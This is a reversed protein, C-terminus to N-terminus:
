PLIIATGENNGKITFYTGDTEKRIDTLSVINNNSSAFSYDADDVVIGNNELQVAAGISRDKGVVMAPVESYLKIEYSSYESIVNFWEVTGDPASIMVDSNGPAKLKLYVTAIHDNEDATIYEGTGHVIKEIEVIETNTSYITLNETNYKDSELLLLTSITNGSAGTINEGFSFSNSGFQIKTSVEPTSSISSFHISAKTLCENGSSIVINNWEEESGQYYVDCLSSCNGFAYYDIKSVTKPISISKLNNSYSFSHIGLEVIGDDISYDTSASGNPYKILKLKDISFAVNNESKLNKNNISITITSINTCGWFTYDDINKLGSGIYVNKLNTCGSFTGYIEGDMINVSDPININVLSVCDRFASDGIKKVSNGITVNTLSSCGDFVSFGIESVTDPITISKLSKCFCFAM